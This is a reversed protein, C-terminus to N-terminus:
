ATKTGWMVVGGGLSLRKVQVQSIGLDVWIRSIDEVSYSRDFATISPGLFKGVDRWGSSIAGAVLPLGLRTYLNWLNRVVVNKPVGFELSVLSGGPKLVRVAESIAANPDEVYRLLWTFCVADFSEDGFGLNEARCRLLTVNSRLGAKSVNRQGRRLMRESLDVGVVRAHSRMAIRLAVGATGTCIDLVTDGPGVSLRSVLFRRWAATQWFSFAESLLDYHSAVGDFLQRAHENKSYNNRPPGLTAEPGSTSNDSM